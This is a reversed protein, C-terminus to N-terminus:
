RGGQNRAWRRAGREARETATEPVSTKVVTLGNAGLYGQVTALLKGAEWAQARFYWRGFEDLKLFKLALGRRQCEQYATRRVDSVSGAVM